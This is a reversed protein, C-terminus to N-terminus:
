LYDWPWKIAFRNKKTVSVKKPTNNQPEWKDRDDGSVLEYPCESYDILHEWQRVGIFSEMVRDSHGFCQRQCQRVAADTERGYNGDVAV